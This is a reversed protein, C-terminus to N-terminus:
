TAVVFQKYDVPSTTESNTWNGVAPTHSDPPEMSRSLRDLCKLREAREMMSCDRLQALPDSTSQALAVGSALEFAVFLSIAATRMAIGAKRAGSPEAMGAGVLLPSTRPGDCFSQDIEM